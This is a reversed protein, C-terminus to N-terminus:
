CVSLVNVYPLLDNCLYVDSRACVVCPLVFFSVLCFHQNFAATVCFLLMKSWHIILVVSGFSGSVWVAGFMELYENSVQSALLFFFFFSM